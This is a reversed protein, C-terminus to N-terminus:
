RDRIYVRYKSLDPFQEWPITAELQRSIYFAVGDMFWDREGIDDRWVWSNGGM